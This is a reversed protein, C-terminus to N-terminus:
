SERLDPEGSEPDGTSEWKENLLSVTMALHDQPVEKLVTILEEAVVERGQVLFGLPPLLLLLLLPLAAAAASTTMVASAQDTVLKGSM